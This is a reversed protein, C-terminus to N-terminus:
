GPMGFNAAMVSPDYGVPGAILDLGKSFSPAIFMVGAAKEAAIQAQTGYNTGEHLWLIDGAPITTLLQPAHATVLAFLAASQALAQKEAIALPTLEVLPVATIHAPLTPKM